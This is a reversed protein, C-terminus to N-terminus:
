EKGLLVYVKTALDAYYSQSLYNQNGHITISSSVCVFLKVQGM